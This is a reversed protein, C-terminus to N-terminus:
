TSGRLIVELDSDKIPPYLKLYRSDIHQVAGRVDEVTSSGGARFRIAHALAVQYRAFNGASREEVLQLLDQALADGGVARENAVRILAIAKHSESLGRSALDIRTTKDQEVHAAMTYAYGAYTYKLFQTRLTLVEDPIAVLQDGLRGARTQVESSLRVPSDELKDFLSSVGRVDQQLAGVRAEAAKVIAPRVQRRMFDSLLEHAPHNRDHPKVANFHDTDGLRVPAGFYRGASAEEVVLTSNPLWKRHVIFHNEIAEVGILDPIKREYVMDKFNKDLDVIVDSAFKLQKAQKQQYIDAILSLTNAHKSGYSPSAILVLGVVKDRFTERHQYLLYRAVIGGTSHAVFVIHKKDMVSESVGRDGFDMPRNLAEWLEKAADRIDYNTSGVSTFYGGLFISLKGLARDNLLLEPWYQKMARSGDTHLWTDRSDGLIGHVFVIATRSDNYEYWLNNDSRAPLKVAFGPPTHAPLDSDTQGFWLAAFGSLAAILVASIIIRTM